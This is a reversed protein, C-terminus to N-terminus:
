GLYLGPVHDGTAGAAWQPRHPPVPTTSCSDQDVMRSASTPPVMSARKESAPRPEAHTLVATERTIQGGSVEASRALSVPAGAPGECEEILTLSPPDATFDVVRHNKQSAYAGGIWTAIASRGRLIQPAHAPRDSDVIRIEACDAYLALQYQTNGSEIAAILGALDFTVQTSM